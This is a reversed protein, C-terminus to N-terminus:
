GIQAKPDLTLRKYVAYLQITYKFFDIRGIETKQNLSIVSVFPSVEAM